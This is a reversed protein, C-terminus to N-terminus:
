CVWEVPHNQLGAENIRKQAAERQVSSATIADVQVGYERAFFIAPGCVGCGADLVRMGSKLKMENAQYNLLNSLDHTRFAQIVEGYVKVFDANTRDYFDGVAKFNSKPNLAVSNPASNAHLRESNGAKQAQKRGVFLYFLLWLFGTSFMCYFLITAASM